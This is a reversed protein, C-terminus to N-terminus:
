GGGVLTVIEVRDGEELRAAAREARPVLRANLETACPADSLGLRAVLGSLTEGPEVDMADSNVVVRM